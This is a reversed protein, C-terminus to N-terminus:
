KYAVFYSKNGFADTGKLRVYESTERDFVFRRGIHLANINKVLDAATSSGEVADCIDMVNTDNWLCLNSMAEPTRSVTMLQPNKM